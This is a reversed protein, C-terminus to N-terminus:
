AGSGESASSDEDGTPTSTQGGEGGESSSEGGGPFGGGGGQGGGPFGGGGGGGSSSSATWATKSFTFQYDVENSDYSSTGGDGNAKIKLTYQTGETLGEIYFYGASAYKMTPGQHAYIFNSVGASGQKVGTESKIKDWGCFANSDNRYMRVDTYDFSVEAGTSDVISYTLSTDPNASYYSDANLIEFVMGNGSLVENETDVTHSEMTSPGMQQTTTKTGYQNFTFSYDGTTIDPDVNHLILTAHQALFDSNSYLAIPGGSKIGILYSGGGISDNPLEFTATEGAEYNKREDNADIYTASYRKSYAPSYSLIEEDTKLVKNGSEDTDYVYVEQSTAEAGPFAGPVERVEMHTKYYDNPTDTAYEDTPATLDCFYVRYYTANAVTKFSFTGAELNFTLDTPAELKTRLSTKVESSGCSSLMAISVLSALVFKNKKM